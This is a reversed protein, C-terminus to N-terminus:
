TEGHIGMSKYMCIIKEPTIDAMINHIPCFVWGSHESLCSSVLEVEKGIQSLTGFPLTHQTDVGGGWLVLGHNVAQQKWESYSHKGANWQVPNLIDFGARAVSGLLDFIAGCSHLFTHVDSDATHIAKNIRSYAPVYIRDFLEPSIISSEQTGQDDASVTIVDIHGALESLLLNYDEIAYEAVLDFYEEAVEPYLM